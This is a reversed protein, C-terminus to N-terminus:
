AEVESDGVEEVTAEKTLHVDLALGRLYNLM